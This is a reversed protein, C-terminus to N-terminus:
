ICLYNLKNLLPEVETRVSLFVSGKRYLFFFFTAANFLNGYSFIFSSFYLFSFYISAKKEKKQENNLNTERFLHLHINFLYFFPLFYKHDTQNRFEVLLDCHPRLSCIGSQGYKTL